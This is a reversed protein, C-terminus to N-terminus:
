ICQFNLRDYYVQAFDIWIHLNTIHDIKMVKMDIADRELRIKRKCNNVMTNTIGPWKFLLFSAGSCYYETNTFVGEIISDLDLRWFSPWDYKVKDGAMFDKSIKDYDSNPPLHIFKGRNQFTILYTM